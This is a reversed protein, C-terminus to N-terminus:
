IMLLRHYQCSTQNKINASCRKLSDVDNQIEADSIYTRTAATNLEGDSWRLIIGLEDIEIDEASKSFTNAYQNPIERIGDACEANDTELISFRFFSTLLYTLDISSASLVAENTYGQLWGVPSNSDITKDEDLIRLVSRLLPIRMSDKPMSMVKNEFSRVAGEPDYSRVAEVIDSPVKDHGNKLYGLLSTDRYALSM